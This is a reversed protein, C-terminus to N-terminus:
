HQLNGLRAVHGDRARVAAEAAHLKVHMKRLIWSASQRSLEDPDVSASRKDPQGAGDSSPSRGSPNTQMRKYYADWAKATQQPASLGMEHLKKELSNNPFITKSPDRWERDIVEQSTFLARKADAREVHLFTSQERSIRPLM